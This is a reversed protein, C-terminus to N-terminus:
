SQSRGGIIPGIVIAIVTIVTPMGPVPPQLTPRAVSGPALVPSPVPLFSPVVKLRATSLIKYAQSSAEDAARDHLSVLLSDVLSLASSPRSILSVDIGAIKTPFM